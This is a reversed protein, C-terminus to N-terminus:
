GPLRCHKACPNWYWDHKRWPMPPLGGPKPMWVSTAASIYRTARGSLMASPLNAAETRPLRIHKVGVAAAAVTFLREIWLHAPM